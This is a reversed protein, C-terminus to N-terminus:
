MLLPGSLAHTRLHSPSYSSGQTIALVGQASSHTLPWVNTLNGIHSGESLSFHPSSQLYWQRHIHTFSTLSFRSRFSCDQWRPRATLLLPPRHQRAGNSLTSYLAPLALLLQCRSGNHILSSSAVALHLRLDSALLQLPLTPTALDVITPSVVMPKRTIPFGRMCSFLSSELHSRCTRVILLLLRKFRFNDRGLSSLHPFFVIM